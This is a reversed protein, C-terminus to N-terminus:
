NIGNGKAQEQLYVSPTVGVSKKFIRNFSAKSNFGCEEAIGLISYLKMDEKVLREKVKKVRYDNIYEYFNKGAHKNIIQSLKNSPIKTLQALSHLSLKPDLFPEEDSMFQSLVKYDETYDSEKEVLVSKGQELEELYFSARDSSQFIETRNFGVFALIFLFIALFSTLLYDGLLTSDYDNYWNLINGFCAIVWLFLAMYTIWRLWYFHMQDIYSYQEFLKKRHKQLISLTMFIYIPNIVLKILPYGLADPASSRLGTFVPYMLFAFFLLFPIFHLYDVTRLMFDKTILARTYLWLLPGYLLPIAYNVESFIPEYYSGDKKYLLFVYYCSIMILLFLVALIWHETRKGKNFVLLLFFLGTLAAALVFLYEM